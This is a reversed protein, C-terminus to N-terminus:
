KPDNVDTFNVKKDVYTSFVDMLFNNKNLGFKFRHCPFLYTKAGDTEGM